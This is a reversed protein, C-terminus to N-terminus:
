TRAATAASPSRRSSATYATLKPCGPRIRKLNNGCKARAAAERVKQVAPLLLGISVAIIAIVVLLEILSFGRRILRLMAIRQAPWPSPPFVFRMLADLRWTGTTGDHLLQIRDARVRYVPGARNGDLRFHREALQRRQTAPEGPRPHHRTELRTRGRADVFTPEGLVTLCKAMTM